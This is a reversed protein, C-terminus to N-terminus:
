DKRRPWLVHVVAFTLLVLGIVLGSGLSRSRTEPVEALVVPTLSAAVVLSIVVQLVIAVGRM